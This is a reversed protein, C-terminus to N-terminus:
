IGDINLGNYLLPWFEVQEFKFTPSLYYKSEDLEGVPIEVPGRSYSGDLNWNFQIVSLPISTFYIGCRIYCRGNIRFFELM